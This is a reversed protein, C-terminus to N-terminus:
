FTLNVGFTFNRTSLGNGKDPAPDLEPDGYDWDKAWVAVNRITGFVKVRDIQWKTTLNRPLTYALSINELRIFTGSYVKDPSDAGTPGLAEIRAYDNTPNDPTWYEKQTVNQLAYTMRGGDDDFNRYYGAKRKHGMKSYINFSVSFDKWLVFENRIAWNIPAITSGLFEKDNNNYVPTITGDDNIIDDATYNNAVKPDGTGM